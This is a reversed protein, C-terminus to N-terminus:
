LIYSHKNNVLSHSSYLHFTPSFTNVGLAITMFYIPLSKKTNNNVSYVSLVSIWGNVESSSNYPYGKKSKKKKTM